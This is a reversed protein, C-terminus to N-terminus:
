PRVNYIIHKIFEMPVGAAELGLYYMCDGGYQHAWEAEGARGFPIVGCPTGINWEGLKGGIMREEKPLLDGQMSMQAVYLTGPDACHQRLTAFADPTYEDDDDAHMIYTTKTALQQQYANRIGHGHFGLNPTQDYVHVAAASGATWEPTYTSKAHADAGDFVITVADGTRLQPLLSNLMGRLSPRGATAILVHFTPLPQAPAPQLKNLCLSAIVLAAIALVLAAIAVSAIVPKNDLGM